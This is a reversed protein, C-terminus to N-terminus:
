VPDQGHNKGRGKETGQGLGVRRADLDVKKTVKRKKLEKDRGLKAQLRLLGSRTLVRFLINQGVLAAAIVM